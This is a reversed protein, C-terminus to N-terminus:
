HGNYDVSMTRFSNIIATWLNTCTKTNAVVWQKGYGRGISKMIWDTSKMADSAWVFRGVHMEHKLLGNCVIWIWTWQEFAATFYGCYREAITIVHVSYIWHLAVCTNSLEPFRHNSIELTISSLNLTHVNHLVKLAIHVQYVIKHAFSKIYICIYISCQITCSYM